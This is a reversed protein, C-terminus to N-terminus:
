NAQSYSFNWWTGLNVVDGINVRGDANVDQRVWGPTGTQNWKTGVSVVDGINVRTDKNVDQDPNLKVFSQGAVLKQGDDSQMFSIYDTAIDRNYVTAGNVTASRNNTTTSNGIGAKARALYLIRTLPYTAGTITKQTATVPDHTSGYPVQGGPSAVYNPSTGFPSNSGINTSVTVTYANALGVSFGYGVYGCQGTANPDNVYGAIDPNGNGRPLSIANVLNGENTANFATLDKFASFTGSSTVRARPVLAVHPGGLAPYVVGNVTVDGCDWYGFKSTDSTTGGYSSGSYYGSYIGQLQLVSLNSIHPTVSNNIIIEMGDRAMPFRDFYTTSPASSSEGLDNNNMMADDRGQGSGNLQDLVMTIPGGFKASELNQFPVIASNSIPFVTSSGSIM